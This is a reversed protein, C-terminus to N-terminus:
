ERSPDFINYTMSSDGGRLIGLEKKFHELIHFFYKFIKCPFTSHITITVTGM